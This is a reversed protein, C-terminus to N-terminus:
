RGGREGVLARCREALRTLVGDLNEIVDRNTVRLLEIGLAEIRRQRDQDYEPAGPQYHSDGDVEIGLRLEPCYFDLVYPGVGYQRRFKFGLLQRNRLHLWLRQEPVPAHNRLHQRKEKDKARNYIRAM